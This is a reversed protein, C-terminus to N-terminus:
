LISKLPQRVSKTIAVYSILNGHFRNKSSCFQNLQQGRDNANVNEDSSIFTDTKSIVKIVFSIISPLVGYINCVNGYSCFSVQLHLTM